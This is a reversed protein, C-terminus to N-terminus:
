YIRPIFIARLANKYASLRAEGEFFNASRRKKKILFFSPRLMSIFEYSISSLFAQKEQDTRSKKGRLASENVKGITNM